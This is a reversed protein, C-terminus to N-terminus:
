LSPNESGTAYSSPKQLNFFKLFFLTFFNKYMFVKRRLIFAIGIFNPVKNKQWFHLILPNIFDIFTYDSSKKKKRSLHLELYKSILPYKWLLYMPTFTSM